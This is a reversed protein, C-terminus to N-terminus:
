KLITRKKFDGPSLGTKRRFLSSFTSVSEFGVSYCSQSVSMGYSLQEKAHEIRKKIQYQRPTTHFYLKFLRLLYFKSYGYESALFNLDIKNFFNNDIYKKVNFLINLHFKDPYLIDNFRIINDSYFASYM